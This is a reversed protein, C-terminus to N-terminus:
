LSAPIQKSIPLLMCVRMCRSITVSKHDSPKRYANFSFCIEFRPCIGSDLLSVNEHMIADESALPVFEM